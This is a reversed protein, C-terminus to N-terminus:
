IKQDATTEQPEDKIGSTERWLSQAITLPDIKRKQGSASM